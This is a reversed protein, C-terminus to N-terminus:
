LYDSLSLGKREGELAYRASDIVHNNKDELIPLIEETKKDTKWSYYSLEDAVHRCRPHVIIDFSKMFELGDEVSGKGKDAGVIQFGKNAVYSITDPRSSDARIQWNRSGPVTDFLRPINDIECGVQYAEQDFYIRRQDHDVFLRVLVTPDNAYGWDAGYRFRAHPPTEFEEIRWNKFVRAQSLRRYKGLWVHAYRDPDRRRDYLIEELTTKPLYPNDYYNANVIITGPPREGSMFLKDVPDDESVPNYTFWIESGRWGTVPDPDKRLTPRLISISYNSLGHAEEAWAGDYGELSKISDATHSQMGQFIILGGGPTIIRDRQPTFLHGLDFKQIKDRILRMASQELSKQIERLCAWRLGDQGETMYYKELALKILAEARDHSKGSARGGRAVKYRSPKEFPLFVRPVKFQISQDQSEHSSAEEEEYGSLMLDDYYSVQASGGQLVRSGQHAM